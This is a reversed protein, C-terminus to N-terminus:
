VRIHGWRGGSYYWLGRANDSNYFPSNSVYPQSQIECAYETVQILYQSGFSQIGISPLKDFSDIGVSSCTGNQITVRNWGEVASVALPSSNGFISNSPVTITGAERAYLYNTRNGDRPSLNITLLVYGEQVNTTLDLGSGNDLAVPLGNENSYTKYLAKIRCDCLWADERLVPNVYLYYWNNNVYTYATSNNLVDTDHLVAAMQWEEAYLPLQAYDSVNMLENTKQLRWAGDRYLYLGSVPSGVDCIEFCERMVAAAQGADEGLDSEPEWYCNKLTELAPIDRREIPEIYRSWEYVIRSHDIHCNTRKEYYKYWGRAATKPGIYEDGFLEEINCGDTLYFYVIANVGSKEYEERDEECVFEGFAFMSGIRDNQGMMFYCMQYGDPTNAILSIFRDFPTYNAVDSPLEPLATLVDRDLDERLRFSGYTKGFKFPETLTDSDDHLVYALDGEEADEPLDAFRDYKQVGKPADDEESRNRWWELLAAMDEAPRNRWWELLESVEEDSITRWWELLAAMDDAPRNRWWELIESVEGDPLNRWWELMEPLDADSGDSQSQNRWWDMLDSLEDPDVGGMVDLEGKPSLSFELNSIYQTKGILVSSGNGSKKYGEVQLGLVPHRTLRRSLLIHIQNDERYPKNAAAEETIKESRIIRGNALFVAVLYDSEDAMAQPVAIVLETANHEGTYGVNIKDRQGTEDRTLDIYVTRM